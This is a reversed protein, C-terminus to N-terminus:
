HLQRSRPAQCDQLHHVSPDRLASSVHGARVGL